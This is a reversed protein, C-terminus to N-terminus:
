ESHFLFKDINEGVKKGLRRKKQNNSYELNKITSIRNEKELNKLSDVLEPM